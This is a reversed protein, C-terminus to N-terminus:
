RHQSLRYGLQRVHVFRTPAERACAPSFVRSCVLSLASGHNASKRIEEFPLSAEDCGFCDDGRRDALPARTMPSVDQIEYCRPHMKRREPVAGLRIKDPLIGEELFPSLSLSLSLSLSFQMASADNTTGRFPGTTWGHFAIEDSRRIASEIFSRCFISIPKRDLEQGCRESRTM